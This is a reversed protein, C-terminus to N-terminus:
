HFGVKSGNMATEEDLAMTQSTAHQNIYKLITKLNPSQGSSLAISIAREQANVSKGISEFLESSGSSDPGSV